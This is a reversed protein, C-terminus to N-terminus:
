QMHFEHLNLGEIFLRMKSTASINGCRNNTFWKLLILSSNLLRFAREAM